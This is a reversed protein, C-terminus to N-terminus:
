LEMKLKEIDGDFLHAKIGVNKAGIINKESDDIFITEQPNLGYTDLLHEFIEANPKTLGLPGSFVLGDFMSLVRNIEPNKQYNEAFGISINSLLFIKRGEAKLDKILQEIGDFLPLNHYWNEYVKVAKERLREPLRSKIGDAVQDDTITGADLKDWYFRDFIVDQALKIDEENEIFKSTMYYTDFHVIVQGFDFICNKIM